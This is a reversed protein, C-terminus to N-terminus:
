YLKKTYSQFNDLIMYYVSIYMISYVRIFCCLSSNFLIYDLRDYYVISLYLIIYVLMFDHYVYVRTKCTLVHYESSYEFMM